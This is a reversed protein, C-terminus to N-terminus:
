RRVSLQQVQWVQRAAAPLKGVALWLRGRESGQSSKGSGNAASLLRQRCPRGALARGKGGAASLVAAWTLARCICARITATWLLCGDGACWWPLPAPPRPLAGARRRRARRRARHRTRAGRAQAHRREARQAAPGGRREPGGLGPQGGGAGAGRCAINGCLRVARCLDRHARCRRSEIVTDQM